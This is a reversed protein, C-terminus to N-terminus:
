GGATTTTPPLRFACLEVASLAPVKTPVYGRHYSSGTVRLVLRGNRNLCRYFLGRGGRVNRFSSGSRVRLVALFPVAFGAAGSIVRRERM